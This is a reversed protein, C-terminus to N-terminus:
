KKWLHNKNYWKKLIKEAEKGRVTFGLRNQMEEPFYQWLYMGKFWKRESLVHLAADLADAQEKQDERGTLMAWPKTNTGDSSAYGLETFIINKFPYHKWWWSEMRDSIASWAGILEEKTPDDNDTLPFYANIGIFDLSDWFLVEEYESWSACYTIKGGYAERVSAVLMAWQADWVFFTTGELEAGVAFIEAGNQAALRAYRLIMEKYSEFWKESPVIDGRFSGDLCDLQPKLMVKMGLSHCTRIAHAISEDTPTDGGAFDQTFVKTSDFREQYAPVMIAIHRVGMKKLYVLTLDSEISGLESDSWSTYVVGAHFEEKTLPAPPAKLEALAKEFEKKKASLDAAKDFAREKKSVEAEERRACSTLSLGLFTLIIITIFKLKGM